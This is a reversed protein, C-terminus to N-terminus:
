KYNAAKRDKNQEIWQELWINKIEDATITPDLRQAANILLDATSQKEAQLALTILEQAAEQEINM